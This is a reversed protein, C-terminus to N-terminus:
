KERLFVRIIFDYYNIVIRLIACRADKGIPSGSIPPQIDNSTNLQRALLTPEAFRV